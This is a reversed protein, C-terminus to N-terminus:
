EKVLIKKMKDLLSDFHKEDDKSLPEVQEKNESVDEFKELTKLDVSDVSKFEYDKYKRISTIVFEDVPDYLYLVELGKSKFIELHPNLDIAERSTGLAFYIEKQDKKM